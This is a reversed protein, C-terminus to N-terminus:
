GLETCENKALNSRISSPADRNNGAVPINAKSNDAVDQTANTNCSSGSEGALFREERSGTCPRDNAEGYKEFPQELSVNMSM